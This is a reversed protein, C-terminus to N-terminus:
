HLQFTYYHFFTWRQVVNLQNCFLSVCCSGPSLCYNIQVKDWWQWHASAQYRDIDSFSCGPLCFMMFRSSFSLNLFKFLISFTWLFCEYWDGWSCIIWHLHIYWPFGKKSCESHWATITNRLRTLSSQHQNQHSKLGEIM